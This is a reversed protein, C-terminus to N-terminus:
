GLTGEAGVFLALDYGTNDCRVRSERRMLSGDPLAIELGLVSDSMTGYRVTLLGGANTSAM